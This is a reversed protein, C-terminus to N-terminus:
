AGGDDRRGIEALTVERDVRPLPTSLYEKTLGKLYANYAWTVFQELLHGNEKQLRANEAALRELREMIPRLEQSTLKKQHELSPTKGLRQKTCQYAIKIRAHKDLAQRTYRIGSRKEIEDVLLDWSLKDAWGDLVGVVQQIICDDINKARRKGM